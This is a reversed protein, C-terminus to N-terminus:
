SKEVSDKLMKKAKQAEKKILKIIEVASMGRTKRAHIERIKHLTELFPSDFSDM